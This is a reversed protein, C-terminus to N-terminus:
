NEIVNGRVEQKYGRSDVFTAGNTFLNRQLKTVRGQYLMEGTTESFVKIDSEYLYSYKKRTEANPFITSFAMYDSFGGAFLILMVLLAIFLQGLVDKMDRM